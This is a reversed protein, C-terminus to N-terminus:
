VLDHTTKNRTQPRESRTPVAVATSGRNPGFRSMSPGSVVWTMTLHLSVAAVGRFAAIGCLDLDRLLLTFDLLLELLDLLEPGNGNQLQSSMFIRLDLDDDRWVVQDLGKILM